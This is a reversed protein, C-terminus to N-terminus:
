PNNYLIEKLTALLSEHPLEDADIQFVYESTCYQIFNNKFSAFDENLAFEIVKIQEFSQVYQKVNETATTDLQVIIEDEGPVYYKLLRPILRQLEVLEDKATIVYSIKVM